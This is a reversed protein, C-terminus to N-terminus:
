LDAGHHPWEELAAQYADLTGIDRLYEKIEYGYMKGLLLPFVQYGFDFVSDAPNNRHDPLYDFFAPSAVYIGGNALNGIPVPPKETFDTIKAEADLVAIGCASPDPARFLGMTLIAGRTKCRSHFGIMDSLNMNTLNDAYAILFDDKEDVFDRHAAVTGASGLLQPEYVTRITMKTHPRKSRVFADVKEAHHHTNVLVETIGHSELLNIWIELLPKGQIPVLCKPLTDTHPRLRTGKGAALLFAKM